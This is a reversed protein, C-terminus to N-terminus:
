DQLLAELAERATAALERPLDPVRQLAQLLTLFALPEGEPAGDELMQALVELVHPRTAPERRAIEALAVLAAEGTWDVPGLALSVLAKRRESGEWGADVQALAFAAAVQLRFVWNWAQIKSPAPSPHVMSALLASAGAPGVERALEGARSWWTDLAYPEAAIRALAAAVPAPPSDVAPSAEDGLFRWLAIPVTGRPQRPDPEGSEEPPLFRVDVKEFRPALLPPVLRISPASPFTSQLAIALKRSKKKELDAVSTALADVLADRRHPLYTEWDRRERKLRALLTRARPSEKEASDVLKDLFADDDDLLVRVFCASPFAWSHKPEQALVKRYAALAEDLKGLELLADGLDLQLSTATAEDPSAALAQRCIRAVRESQGAAKLAGSLSVLTRLGPELAVAKEAAAIAEDHRGLLRLAAALLTQPVASTPAAAALRELLAVVHARAGPSEHARLFSLVAPALAALAEPASGGAITEELRALAADPDPESM